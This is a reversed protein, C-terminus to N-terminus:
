ESWHPTIRLQAGASPAWLLLGTQPDLTWDPAPFTYIQGLGISGGLTVGGFPVAGGPVTPAGAWAIDVNTLAVDASQYPQGLFSTPGSGVNGSPIRYFDIVTSTAPAAHNIIEIRVMRPRSGAAARILAVPANAGVAGPTKVTVSFTAM